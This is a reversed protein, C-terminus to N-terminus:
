RLAPQKRPVESYTSIVPFTSIEAKRSRVYQLWNSYICASSSRWTDQLSNVLSTEPFASMVEELPSALATDRFERLLNTAESDFYGNPMTPYTEGEGRLFRKIDRRYEKLLTHEGCGPHGQFHVFLSKEKIKM